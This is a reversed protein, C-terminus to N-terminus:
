RFTDAKAGPLAALRTRAVVSGAAAADGYWRRANELDVLVGVGRTYADGLATQAVASGSVAVRELGKIVLESTAQEPRDLLAALTSAASEEGLSAAQVLWGLAADLSGVGKSEALALAYLLRLAPLFDQAAAAELLATAALHDAQVGLGQLYLQALNYAGEPRGSAAAQRYWEAAEAYDVAGRAGTAAAIGMQLAAASSGQEAAAQYAALGALPDQQVGLGHIQLTGFHMVAERDGEAAARGFWHAAAAYDQAVGRGEAYLAGLREFAGVFGQKAAREFWRVADTADPEVGRGELCLVGMLYEAEADGRDAAERCLQAATLYDPYELASLLRVLSVLAPVSGKVAARRLWTEAMVSNVPIGDGTRQLEGLRYMALVEGARAAYTLSTVVRAMDRVALPQELLLLGLTLHALSHGKAAARELWRIALAEDVVGGYRGAHLLGLGLEGMVQGRDAASQFQMAALAVDTEGGLGCALQHGLRAAAGADGGAAALRNWHLAAQPNAAVDLGEPYLRRFFSSGATPSELSARAADSLLDGAALGTLYVEGLRAQAAVVGADAARQYSKVAAVPNRLVGVGAELCQGLRWDAQVEGQASLTRFLAVADSFRREAYAREATAFTDAHPLLLRPVWGSPLHAAFWACVKAWASRWPAATALPATM